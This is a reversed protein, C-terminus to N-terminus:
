ARAQEEKVAGWRIEYPESHHRMGIVRVGSFVDGTAETGVVRGSRLYALLKEVFMEHNAEINVAYDHNFEILTRNSM